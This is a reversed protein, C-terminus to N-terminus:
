PLSVYEMSEVTVKTGASIGLPDDKMIDASGADSWISAGKVTKVAEDSDITKPKAEPLSEILNWM